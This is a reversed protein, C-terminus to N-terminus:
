VSLKLHSELKLLEQTNVSANLPSLLESWIKQEGM